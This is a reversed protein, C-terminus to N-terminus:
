HQTDLTRNEVNKEEVIGFDPSERRIRFASVASFHHAMDTSLILDIIHKRVTRFLAAHTRSYVGSEKLLEFTAYAHFNELVSTDNYVLALENGTLVFFPNSLGPHGVDHSLAAIVVLLREHPTMYEDVGTFLTLLACHHSVQAAHLSSHYLNDRYSKKIRMLYDELSDQTIEHELDVRCKQFLVLGAALVANGDTAEELDFISLEWTVGIQKAKHRLFDPKPIHRPVKCKNMIKPLQSRIKLEVLKLGEDNFDSNTTLVTAGSDPSTSPDAVWPVAPPMAELAYLNRGSTVIHVSDQQLQSVEQMLDMTEGRLNHNTLLNDVTQSSLKLKQVLVELNSYGKFQMIMNEVEKLKTRTVGLSYFLTRAQREFMDTGFYMFCSGSIATLVYAFISAFDYPSFLFSDRLLIALIASIVSVIAPILHLTLSISVRVRLILDASLIYVFERILASFMALTVMSGDMVSDDIEPNHYVISSVAVSIKRLAASIFIVSSSVVIILELRLRWSKVYGSVCLLLQSALSIFVLVVELALMPPPFILRHKELDYMYSPIDIANSLILLFFGIITVRPQLLETLYEKFAAEAKPDKYRLPFSNLYSPVTRFISRKSERKHSSPSSQIRPSSVLTRKRAISESNFDLSDGWYANVKRQINQLFQPRRSWRSTTNRRFGPSFASAALRGTSPATLPSLEDDNNSDGEAKDSSRSVWVDSSAWQVTTTRDSSNSSTTLSQNAIRRPSIGNSSWFSANSNREQGSKQTDASM